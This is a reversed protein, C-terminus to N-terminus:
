VKRRCPADMNTSVCPIRAPCLLNGRSHNTNRVMVSTEATACSQRLALRCHHVQESNLQLKHLKLSAM